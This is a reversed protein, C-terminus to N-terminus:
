ISASRGVMKAVRTPFTEAFIRYYMLEEKTRLAVGKAPARESAFEEDSIKAEAIAAMKDELGTGAAIKAKRRNAIEDPLDEGFAKRLIWKETGKTPHMKFQIPIRFAYEVVALDDLYPVRVELGHAMSIRDCVQLNTKHMGLTIDVLEKKLEDARKARLYSYGAFIEDAGEGSLAVKVHQSALEALFYSPIASRVLACDFSELHYIIKPLAALAEEMTFIREHHRTKLHEAALKASELDDSGEMGVAFTDLPDKFKKAISALVTSDLGGSLYVGVPVDAMLRTEVAREVRKRLEAAAVDADYEEENQEPLTYYRKLGESSTYVHGPPFEGVSDCVELLAKIESGFVFEEGKRGIYLPKVGLPDRALTLGRNSIIAIAFMGDLKKVWQVPDQFTEHLALLVETDCDSKFSRKGFGARLERFNYIEGNYIIKARSNPDEMPQDGHEPDLISLRANGISCNPGIWMARNDPGRHAVRDLMKRISDKREPKIIGVIACM